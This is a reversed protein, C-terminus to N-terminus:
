LVGYLSKIESAAALAGEVVDTTATTKTLM